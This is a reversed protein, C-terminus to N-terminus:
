WGASCEALSRDPGQRGPGPKEPGQTDLGQRDPGQRDPGQRDLGQRDPGHRDLGQRRPVMRRIDASGKRNEHAQGPDTAPQRPRM